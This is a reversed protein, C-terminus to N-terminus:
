LHRANAIPYPKVSQKNVYKNGNQTLALCGSNVHFYIIFPNPASISNIWYINNEITINKFKPQLPLINLYLLM